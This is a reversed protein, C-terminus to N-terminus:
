LYNDIVTNPALGTWECIDAIYKLTDNESPPAYKICLERITKGVYWGTSLRAEMAHFGVDATPFIAFRAHEGAPVVELGTSGHTIAFPGYELDGPNNNRTPRDGKIGYGEKRAIAQCITM